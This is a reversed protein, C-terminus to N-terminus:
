NQAGVHARSPAQLEEKALELTSRPQRDVIVLADKNRHVDLRLDKGANLRDEVAADLPEGLRVEAERQGGLLQAEGGKIREDGLHVLIQRSPFSEKQGGTPAQDEEVSHEVSQWGKGHSSKFEGRAHDGSQVPQTAGEEPRARIFGTAGLAEDSPIADAARFVFPPQADAGDGNLVGAQEEFQQMPEVAGRALGPRPPDPIGLSPKGKVAVVRSRGERTSVPRRQAAEKGKVAADRTDLNPVACTRCEPEIPPKGGPGEGGGHRLEEGVARQLAGRHPLHEIMPEVDDEGRAQGGDSHRLARLKKTGQGGDAQAISDVLAGKREAALGAPTQVGRGDVLEAGEAAHLVLVVLENPATACGGADLKEAPEGHFIADLAPAVKEAFTDEDGRVTSTGDARLRELSRTM